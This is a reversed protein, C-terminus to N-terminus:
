PLNDLNIQPGKMKRKPRNATNMSNVMNLISSGTKKMIMRSIIFFAANIIILFLLRVEVPWNSEGPIYSKEGIEILLREYSNMNMVQQNTFGEMDFKLWRGLVYEVVMFGGILYTKYQEVNSDLTLKRVTQEYTKKMLNYDSHITFEPIQAGKYSKKLLEFKFLLERKLDDIDEENQIHETKPIYAESQKVEGKQELESLTPITNKTETVSPQDHKSESPVSSASPASPDELLEKLRQTLDSNDQKVEIKDPQEKVFTPSAKPSPSEHFTNPSSPKSDLNKMELIPNSELKKAANEFRNEM